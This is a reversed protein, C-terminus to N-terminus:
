EYSSAIHLQKHRVCFDDVSVINFEDCLFNKKIGWIQDSSWNQENADISILFMFEWMCMCIQLRVIVGVGVVFWYFSYYCKVSMWIIPKLQTNNSKCKGSIRWVRKICVQVMSSSCWCCCYSSYCHCYVYCPFSFHKPTLFLLM